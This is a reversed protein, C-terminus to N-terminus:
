AKLIISPIFHPPLSGGTHDVAAVKSFGLSTAAEANLQQSNESRNQECVCVFVCESGWPYM